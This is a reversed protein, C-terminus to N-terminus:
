SGRGGTVGGTVGAPIGHDGMGRVGGLRPAQALRAEVEPDECLALRWYADMAALLDPGAAGSRDPLEPNTSQRGRAITDTM